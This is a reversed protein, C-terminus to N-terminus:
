FMRAIDHAKDIGTYVVWALSSLLYPNKLEHGWLKMMDKITMFIIIADM